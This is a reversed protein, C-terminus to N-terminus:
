ISEPTRWISKESAARILKFVTDRIFLIDAYKEGAVEKLPCEASQYFLIEGDSDFVQAKSRTTGIDVCLFNM